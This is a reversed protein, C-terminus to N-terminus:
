AHRYAGFLGPAGTAPDRSFCVGTASTDGLNGYVMTQVNVATGKLGTIRNIERYKVARPTNWSRFVAAVAARLQDAPAEPLAKGARAYVEKFRRVVQRLDDATMEVDYQLGRAAKVQSLEGEFEAPAAFLLRPHALPAFAASELYRTM